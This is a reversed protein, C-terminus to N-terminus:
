SSLQSYRSENGPNLRAELSCISLVMALRPFVHSLAFGVMMLYSLHESLKMLRHFSAALLMSLWTRFFPGMTM